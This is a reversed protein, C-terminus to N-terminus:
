FMSTWCKDLEIVEGDEWYADNGNRRTAIVNVLNEKQIVVPKGPTVVCNDPIDQSVSANAAIRCNNGVKVNGTIKAGAGIVCNDGITPAGCGKSGVLTVSGITVQQYVTCNSGIKSGGSIFIGYTGHPLNMRGKIEADFPIYSGTEHEFGRQLIAYFRKFYKSRFYRSRIGHYGGLKKALISFIM